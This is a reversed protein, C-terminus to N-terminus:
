HRPPQPKGKPKSPQQKAAKPPEPTNKDVLDFGLDEAQRMKVDLPLAHSVENFAKAARKMLRVDGSTAKEAAQRSADALFRGVTELEFDSPPIVSGDKMGKSLMELDATMMAVMLRQTQMDLSRFSPTSPTGNEVAAMFSDVLSVTEASLNAAVDDFNEAGVLLAASTLSDVLTDKTRGRMEEEVLGAAVLCTVDFNSISNITVNIEPRDPLIRNAVNYLPDDEMDDDEGWFASDDEDDDDYMGFEDYETPRQLRNGGNPRYPVFSDDVPKKTEPAPPAAPTDDDLDFSQGIRNKLFSKDADKKPQPKKDPKAM